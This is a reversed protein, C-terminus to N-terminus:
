QQEALFTIANLADLQSPLENQGAPYDGRSLMYALIDANQQPNFGGPSQLPMMVSVYEFLDGLPRDSWRGVFGMGALAPAREGGLLNPGHCAACSRSYLAAGREAQAVSYVGVWQSRTQASVTSRWGAVGWGIAATLSFVIAVAHAHKRRTVSCCAKM